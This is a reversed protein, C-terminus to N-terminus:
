IGVLTTYHIAHVCWDAFHNYIHMTELGPLTPCPITTQVKPALAVGTAIIDSGPDYLEPYRAFLAPDLKFRPVGDNLGLRQFAQRAYPPTFLADIDPAPL